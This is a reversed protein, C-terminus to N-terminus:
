CDKPRLWWCAKPLGTANPFATTANAGAADTTFAYGAMAGVGTATATFGQGSDTLSCSFQFQPTAGPVAVGCASVGYNNSDQYFQELRMRYTGLAEFAGSLHGRRVYDSYSPLAVAALITVIAITIMVEILTFGGSSAERPRTNLPDM